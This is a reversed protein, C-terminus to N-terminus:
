RHKQRHGIRSPNGQDDHLHIYRDTGREGDESEVQYPVTWVYWDCHQPISTVRNSSQSKTNTGYNTGSTKWTAKSLSHMKKTLCKAMGRLGIICFRQRAESMLRKYGCHRRSEHMEQLLLYALLDNRPLIIPNRMECPLSRIEELRGHARILGDDNLKAKIQNTLPEPM